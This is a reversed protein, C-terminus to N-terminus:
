TVGEDPVSFSCSASGCGQCVGPTIGWAKPMLGREGTPEDWWSPGAARKLRASAREIMDSWRHDRKAFLDRDTDNMMLPAIPTLTEPDPWTNDWTLMSTRTAQRAAAAEQLELPAGSGPTGVGHKVWREATERDVLLTTGAPVKQRGFQQWGRPSFEDQVLLMPVTDGATWREQVVPEIWPGLPMETATLIARPVGMDLREPPIFLPGVSPTILPAAIAAVTTGALLKLFSRRQM